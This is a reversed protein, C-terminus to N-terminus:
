LEVLEGEIGHRFHAPMNNAINFDVPVGILAQLEDELSAIDFLSIPGARGSPITALIDLDSGEHDDGRVTSGFLQPSVFGYSEVLRKIAGEKGRIADSPEDFKSAKSRAKLQIEESLKQLHLQHERAVSDLTEQNLFAPRQRVMKHDFARAPVKEPAARTGRTM